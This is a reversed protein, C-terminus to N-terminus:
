AQKMNLIAIESKEARLKQTTKLKQILELMKKRLSTPVLIRNAMFIIGDLVNLQSQHHKYEPLVKGKQLADRLQSLREDKGTEDQFIKWASDSVPVQLKVENVHFDIDKSTTDKDNEVGNIKKSLGDALM